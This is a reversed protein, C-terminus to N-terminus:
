VVTQGGVIIHTADAAGNPTTQASARPGTMLTGNTTFWLCRETGGSDILVFCSAGGAVTNVAVSSPQRVSGFVTEGSIRETLAM